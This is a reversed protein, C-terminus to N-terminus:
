LRSDGDYDEDDIGNLKRIKFYYYPYSVDNPREIYRKRSFITMKKVEREVNYIRFAKSRFSVLGSEYEPADRSAIIKLFDAQSYQEMRRRPIGCKATVKCGILTQGNPTVRYVVDLRYAKERIVIISRVVAFYNGKLHPLELKLKGTKHFNPIIEKMFSEMCVDARRELEELYLSKQGGAASGLFSLDLYHRLEYLVDSLLLPKKCRDLSDMTLSLYLSDTDVM